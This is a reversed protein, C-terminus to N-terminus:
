YWNFRLIFCNFYNFVHTVTLLLIKVEPDYTYHLNQKELRLKSWKTREIFAEKDKKRQHLNNKLNIKDLMDKEYANMELELKIKLRRLHCIKDWTKKDMQLRKNIVYKYDEYANLTEIYQVLETSLLNLKKDSPDMITNALQYSLLTSYQAVNPM